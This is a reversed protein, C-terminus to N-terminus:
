WITTARGPDAAAGTEAKGTPGFGDRDRDGPDSGIALNHRNTENCIERYGTHNLVVRKTQTPGPLPAARAAGTRTSIQGGFVNLVYARRGIRSSAVVNRRPSLRVEQSRGRHPNTSRPKGKSKGRIVQASGALCHTEPHKSQQCVGPGHGLLKPWRQHYAPLQQAPNSGHRVGSPGHWVAQLTHDPHRLSRWDPVVLRASRCQANGRLAEVLSTYRGRTKDHDLLLFPRQGHSREVRPLHNEPDSHGGSMLRPM